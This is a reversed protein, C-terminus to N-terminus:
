PCGLKFSSLFASVDFFNLVGDGNFDAALDGRNYLALFESVDFFDLRDDGNLNAPSGCVPREATFYVGDSRVVLTGSVPSDGALVFPDGTFTQDFTAGSWSVLRQEVIASPLGDPASVSVVIPHAMSVAGGSGVEVRDHSGDPFLDFAFRSQYNVVELTGTTGIVGARDPFGPAITGDSMFITRPVSETGSVKGGGYIFLGRDGTVRGGPADFVYEGAANISLGGTFDPNDTVFRVRSGATYLRVYGWRELEPTFDFDVPERPEITLSEFPGDPDYADRQFRVVGAGTVSRCRTEWTPTLVGRSGIAMDADRFAFGFAGYGLPKMTGREIEIRGSFADRQMPRWSQSSSLDVRVVGDGSVRLDESTRGGDIVLTAPAQDSGTPDLHIYRFGSTVWFTRAGASTRVDWDDFVHGDAGILRSRLTAGAPVKVGLPVAFWQGDQLGEHIIPRCLRTDSPDPNVIAEIGSAVDLDGLQTFRDPWWRRESVLVVGGGGGGGFRTDAVFPNRAHILHAHAGAGGGADVRGSVDVTSGVLRIMGGSGGGGPMDMDSSGAGGRVTVTGSIFLRGRANLEIAGGGGGGAGSRSVFPGFSPAAAAGGGGSGGYIWRWPEHEQFVAWGSPIVGWRISPPSTDWDNILGGWGGLGGLGGGSGANKWDASASAGGLGPLVGLGAHGDRGGHSWTLRHGNGGDAGTPSGGGTYEFADRGGADITGDIRMHSLSIIAVAGVDNGVRIREGAPLHFKSFTFVTLDPFDGGTQVLRHGDFLPLFLQLVGIGLQVTDGSRRIEYTTFADGAMDFDGLSENLDPNLPPLALVAGAASLLCSISVTMLRM